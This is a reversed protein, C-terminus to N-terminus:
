LLAAAYESRHGRLEGNQRVRVASSKWEGCCVIHAWESASGVSDSYARLQEIQRFRAGQGREGLGFCSRWEAHVGFWGDVSGIRASCSWIGLSCSFDGFACPKLDAILPIPGSLQSTAGSEVNIRLLRGLPTAAYAVAGDGSLTIANFGEPLNAIARRGSGDTNQVFVELPGGSEAPALYLALKGDDSIWLALCCSGNIVTLPLTVTDLVTEQGSAINHAILQLTGTTETQSIMGDYLITSGDRSLRAELVTTVSLAVTTGAGWGSATPQAITVFNGAGTLM